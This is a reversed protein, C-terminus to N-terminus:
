EHKRPIHLTFKSGKELESEVEISGKHAEVMTKVYALGLGFGKVDHVNGTPLRYFKEFIRKQTDRSMGIGQDKVSIRIEKKNDTAEVNIVPKERAYKNANDLLNNIVNALHFSDAQIWPNDIDINVNITGGRKEVML